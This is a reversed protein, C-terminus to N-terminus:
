GSRPEPSPPTPAAAPPARRYLQRREEMVQRVWEADHVEKSNRDKELTSGGRLRQFNPVFTGQLVSWITESALDQIEKDQLVSKSFRMMSERLHPDKLLYQIADKCLRIAEGELSDDQLVKRLFASVAALIKPDEIAKQLSAVVQNLFDERKLIHIFLSSLNQQVRADKGLIEVLEVGVAAVQSRVDDSKMVTVVLAQLATLTEARSLFSRLAQQTSQQVEEDNLIQHIVTKSVTLAQAQLQVDALTKRAVEAGEHSLQEKGYHNWYWVGAIIGGGLFLGVWRLVSLGAYKVHDLHSVYESTGHLYQGLSELASYQQPSM